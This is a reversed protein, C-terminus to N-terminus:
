SIGISFRRMNGSLCWWTFHNFRGAWYNYSTENIRQITCNWIRSTIVCHLGWFRLKLPLFNNLSYFCVHILNLVQDKKYKRKGEFTSGNRCLISNLQDQTVQVSMWIGLEQVHQVQYLFCGAVIEHLLEFYMTSCPRFVLMEGAHRAWNTFPVTSPLFHSGYIKKVSRRRKRCM